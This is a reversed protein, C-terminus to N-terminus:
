LARPDIEVHTKPGIFKSHRELLDHETEAFDVVLQLAELGLTAGRVLIAHGATLQELNKRSLGLVLFRQGDANKLEFSLM